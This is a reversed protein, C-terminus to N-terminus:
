HPDTITFRPRWTYHLTIVTQLPFNVM